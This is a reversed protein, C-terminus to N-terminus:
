KMDLFSVCKRYYFDRFFHFYHVIYLLPYCNDTVGGEFTVMM